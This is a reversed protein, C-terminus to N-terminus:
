SAESLNRFEVRRNIGSTPNASDFLEAEGKGVHGLRSPTVSHTQVLYTQVARARKESLTLNYGEAGTADAHGEIVIAKDQMIEDNLVEAVRDLVKKAGPTLEYSDFEFEVRMAVALDKPPASQAVAKPKSAPEDYVVLGRLKPRAFAHEHKAIESQTACDEPVARSLARFIECRSSDGSLYTASGAHSQPVFALAMAAAIMWPLANVPKSIM